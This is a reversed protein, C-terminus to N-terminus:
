ITVEEKGDEGERGRGGERNKRGGGKESGGKKRGKLVGEREEKRRKM